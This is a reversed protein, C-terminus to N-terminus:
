QPRTLVHRNMLPGRYRLFTDFSVAAASQQKNDQPVWVKAEFKRAETSAGKDVYGDTKITDGSDTVANVMADSFYSSFDSFDAENAKTIGTASM